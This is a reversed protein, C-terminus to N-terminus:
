YINYFDNVNTEIGSRNNSQDTAYLVIEQLNGDFTYTPNTDVTGIQLNGFPSPLSVSSQSIYSSGNINANLDGNYIANISYQNAGLVSGEYYSGSDPRLMFKDNRFLHWVWDNFTDDSGMLSEYTRALNSKAVTFTSFTSPLAYSTTLWNSDFEMTPKGGETITTGSSVIKPQIAATTQTANNSGSQDYWTTVYGNATTDIASFSSISCTATGVPNIGLFDNSSGSVIDLRHTGATSIEDSQTGGAYIKIRGSSISDVVITISYTHGSVNVGQRITLGNEEVMDFAETESNYETNSGLNWGTASSIEPNTFVEGSNVFSEMTATDLVNNAFGIDQEQNDSERRVRIANGSYDTRLLRLSYAAASGSYTDLLLNAAVGLDKYVIGWSITNDRGDGWNTTEYIKGYGELDSM